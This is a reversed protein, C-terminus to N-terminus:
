PEFARKLNSGSLIDTGDQGMNAIQFRDRPTLKRVVHHAVIDEVSEPFFQNPKSYSGNDSVSLGIMSSKIKNLLCLSEIVEKVKGYIQPAKSARPGTVNLVQVKCCTMWDNITMPVEFEPIKDLDIYLCPKSHMLAMKKTYHGGGTLNGHSIILTGDSDVVNMETRRQYNDTAMEVLDYKASLPGDETLSGEPIWGGHPVKLAIAADLAARETGTQGGCIIKELMRRKRQQYDAQVEKHKRYFGQEDIIGKEILLRTLADVQISNAMLLEKFSVLDEPSLEEAM